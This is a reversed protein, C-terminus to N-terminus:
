VLVVVVVLVAALVVVLVAMRVVVVVEILVAESRTALFLSLLSFLVNNDDHRQLRFVDFFMLFCLFLVLAKGPFKM